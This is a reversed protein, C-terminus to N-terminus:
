LELGFIKNISRRSKEVATKWDDNTGIGPFQLQTSRNSGIGWSSENADADTDADYAPEVYMCHSPSRNLHELMLLLRIMYASTDYSM